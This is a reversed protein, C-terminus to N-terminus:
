NNGCTDHEPGCNANLCDGCPGSEGSDTCLNDGCEPDCLGQGGGASCACDFLAAYASSSVSDCLDDGQVALGAALASQCSVSECPTGAAAAVDVGADVSCAGIALSIGLAAAVFILKNV